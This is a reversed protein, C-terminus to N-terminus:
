NNVGKRKEYCWIYADDSLVYQKLEYETWVIRAMGNSRVVEAQKLYHGKLTRCSLCACLQNSKDHVTVEQMM